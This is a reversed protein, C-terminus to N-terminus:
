EASYIKIWSPINKEVLKDNIFIDEDKHPMKFLALATTKDDLVSIIKGVDVVEANMLVDDKIIEFNATISIVRKRIAMRHKASNTFEQGLYCGKNYSLAGLEDMGYEIPISKDFTLENSEPVSNKYRIENYNLMLDDSSIKNTSITRYGLIDLRPDKYSIICDDIKSKTNYVKYNELIEFSVKAILKRYKLAQIFGDVQSENIDILFYDEKKIVFFDFQYRGKPSLLCSYIPNDESCLNLNNTILNQLFNQTDSGTIKIIRRNM